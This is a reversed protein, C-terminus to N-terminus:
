QTDVYLTDSNSACTAQIAGSPVYPFYRQYSGGETLLIAISKTPSGGDVTVWCADGNSNNNEITISARNSNAALVQQFTNGTTIVVSNNNTTKNGPCPQTTSFGTNSNYCDLIVNAPASSIAGIFLFFALAFTRIM